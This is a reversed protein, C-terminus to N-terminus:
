GIIETFCGDPMKTVLGRIKLEEHLNPGRCGSAQGNLIDGHFPLFLLDGKTFNGADGDGSLIEVGCGAPCNALIQKKSGPVRDLVM